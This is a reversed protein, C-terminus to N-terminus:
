RNKSVDGIDKQHARLLQTLENIQTRLTVLEAENAKVGKDQGIFFSAVAATIYGFVALAYVSLLWCLIRGETTQPWYESGLTTLVMATWWVAESYSQLGMGADAEAVYGSDRLAQPSEFTAMGAAGAFIVITTIAIVYGINRRGLTQATARMGRNFSTVLRLLSVTRTARAAQLLRFARFVRLIRLAPLVLSVATLWNRKLYDVKRPAILFEIAFDLIFLAWIVNSITQLLPNLGTTFDIILLLLWVFALALMPKDFLKNLHELLEWRERQLEHTEDTM